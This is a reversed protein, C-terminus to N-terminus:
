RNLPIQQKGDSVFSNYRTHDFIHLCWMQSHWTQAPTGSRGLYYIPSLKRMERSSNFENIALREGTFDNYMEIHGGITDDFYVPVRPLLHKSDVDFLRFAATTSSYFDLDHSVGGIPAADVTDFFAPVTQAVNGFIVKASKLRSLLANRDMAFFGAEWHYPLDRYDVPPPLGEGTDFGYIEIKVPFIKEVARAHAELCLLGNGGAVGFEVVSVAPLGLRFALWAAEYVLYAYHPRDVAGINYRFQYSGLQAKQIAKRIAARMPAQHNLLREVIPM